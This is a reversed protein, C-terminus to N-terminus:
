ACVDNRRSFVPQYLIIIAHYYLVTLPIRSIGCPLRMKFCYVPNKVCTPTASEYSSPLKLVLRVRQVSSGLKKLEREM